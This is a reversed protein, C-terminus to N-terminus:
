VSRVVTFGQGTHQVEKRHRDCPSTVTNAAYGHTCVAFFKGGSCKWKGLNEEGTERTM